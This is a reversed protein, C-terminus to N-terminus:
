RNDLDAYIQPMSRAVDNVITAEQINYVRRNDQKRHALDRLLHGEGCGWCKLPERKTNDNKGPTTGYPKSGSQSPFNQQYVSKTPLIMNSSKGHNKFISSKFGRRRSDWIVKRRRTRILNKRVKSNRM